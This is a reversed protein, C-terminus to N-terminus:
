SERRVTVAKGAYTVVEDVEDENTTEIGYGHADKVFVVQFTREALMGDFEGERDGITLSQDADSYTLPIRAYQGKEYDYNDGADEYLTFEADAGPYVRLEIPDPAKETAYQLDPGFPVISGAKVFIPISDIPAPAAGGGGGRKRTGTWFDYWDGEGPLYVPRKCVGPTTVPCILMAPGFMFQDTIERVKPDTRFDFALARMMTYGKHTVAGALSYIYPMLRYRLRSFALMVRRAEEGFSWMENAYRNGHLRFIPCFTGYQFWRVISESTWEQGSFGGIDSAWYPIGGSCFNLGAPLQRAYTDWDTTIDGSWVAAANRQLGAYACRTLIYVRKRDTENRQGRYFYGTHKLPYINLVRSCNGVSTNVKANSWGGWDEPESADLWWADIGRAFHSKKVMEWVTKGAEDQTVDYFRGCFGETPHRLLYGKSDLEDYNPNGPQFAPWVSVMVHVNMDHLTDIMGKPDPWNVEDFQYSGCGNKWHFYDIVVADLPLTEKRHRRAIGELEDRGDYYCRCQWFGYAWKPFMPAQGTIRRYEALIRDFDPGYMVYYDIADHLLCEASITFPSEIEMKADNNFLVGYGQTSLYVPLANETNEHAITLKGGDEWARRQNMHGHTHQGFGYIGEDPTLSFHMQGRSAPAGALEVRKIDMVKREQLLPEGDAGAFHLTGHVKSLRVELEQTRLFFDRDTEEVDFSPRNWDDKIVIESLAPPMEDRRTYVVRVVNEDCVELKLTGFMFDVVLGDDAKRWGTIVQM